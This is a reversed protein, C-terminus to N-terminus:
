RSNRSLYGANYGAEYDQREKAGTWRGSQINRPINRDADSRGDRLGERYAASDQQIGSRAPSQRTLTGSDRPRLPQSLRFTLLSEAPVNVSKGRTLVQAGAGAAAGAGAGIAAGKKGGAIAGVIAGLVAGGGVYKGTRENAGIGDSKESTVLNDDVNVGYRQGNVTISEIDLAVEDESVKRVILDVPSGKPIAVGGRRNPIDQDIVADFTESDDGKASIEESTRVNITTGAEITGVIGSSKATRQAAEASSFWLSMTGALLLSFLRPTLMSKTRIM